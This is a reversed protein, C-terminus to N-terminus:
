GVVVYAYTKNATSNAFHTLTAVGKGQSSVYVNTSASPAVYQMTVIVSPTAPRTPSTQAPINQLSVTTSTTCWVIEAYDGANMEIFFNLATILRGDVLSGHRPGIMYESNSKPIDVGNKRFWISIDQEQSDTNIFQASYQLNYIGYDSVNIRSNNSVFVGNSFDTTNLTIPYATTTSTAVQDTDDQFEGFPASDAYAAASFPILIIKSDVGIRLDNITTTLAGGTALTVLGTNNTKGNMIGNVVEAVARADGGFAPLTRFQVTM